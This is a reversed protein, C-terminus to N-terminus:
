IARAHMARRMAVRQQEHKILRAEEMLGDGSVLEIGIHELARIGDLALTDVAVRSGQMHERLVDVNEAM